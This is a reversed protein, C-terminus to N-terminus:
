PQEAAPPNIDLLEIEFILTSFPPIIGRGQAGYALSSPVYLKIKGGKNVKQMGEKWGDIVGEFLSTTLPEGRPISSDFVTGDVLMGTYHVRVTDTPKPFDGTGPTVVEYALGSPLSQVGPKQKVQDFFAQTEAESQARMQEDFAAQKQGMFAELEPGMAEMDFPIDEGAAAKRLGIVLAEVQAPTFGLEVLGIRRGVFWGYAESLQAETFTVAPATPAAAPAPQARLAFTAGFACLSLKLVQTLKM